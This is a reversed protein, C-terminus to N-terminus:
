KQFKRRVWAVGMLGSGLLLIASPIPMHAPHHALYAYEDWYKFESSYYDPRQTALMLYMGPEDNFWIGFVFDGYDNIDVPGGFRICPSIGELTTILDTGDMYRVGGGVSNYLVDGSNNITVGGQDGGKVTALVGRTTSVVQGGDKYVIEGSDNVDTYYILHGSSFTALTGRTTSNITPYYAQEDSYVIEGLNNIGPTFGYAVKGRVTSYVTWPGSGNPVASGSYVIEGSDNIRPFRTSWDATSLQGKVTSYLEFGKDGVYNMYAIEGLNNISGQSANEAVVFYKYLSADYIIGANVASVHTVSSLLIIAVLILMNKKM